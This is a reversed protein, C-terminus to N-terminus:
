ERTQWGKGDSVIEVEGDVDTRKIKAGIMKLRQLTEPAPHGYKNNAGVSIVALSPRISELFSVATSYQSGHHAVKLVNVSEGFGQNLLIAEQDVGADGTFLAKFDGYELEAVIATENLNGAFIETGLIEKNGGNNNNGQNVWVIKNGLREEPYLIKITLNAIKIKDGFKPSFVPIKNKIVEARFKSFVGTDALLSNSVLQLVRYRELVSVLGTVHDFEPHSLVVVEITRDWFPLHESLCALVKDNPGGDVLIQINGKTILTADGQGVDCFYLHLKGDPFSLLFLVTIAIILLLFYFPYKYKIIM